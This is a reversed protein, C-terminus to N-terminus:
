VLWQLEPYAETLQDIEQYDNRDPIAIEVDLRHLAALVRQRIRAFTSIHIGLLRSVAQPHLSIHSWLLVAVLQERPHIAFKRGAGPTTQRGAYHVREAQLRGWVVEFDRYLREFEAISFGTLRIFFEEDATM